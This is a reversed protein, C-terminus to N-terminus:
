SLRKPILSEDLYIYRQRPPQTALHDAIEQVFTRMRAVYVAAPQEPEDPEAPQDPEEAAEPIADAPLPKYPPAPEGSM